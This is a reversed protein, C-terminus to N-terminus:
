AIIFLLWNLNVCGSMIVTDDFVYVKMHFLGITENYREPLLAKIWGRLDPTHYLAITVSDSFDRLLPLLMRRSNREGRSGRM